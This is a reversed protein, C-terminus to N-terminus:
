LLPGSNHALFPTKFANIYILAKLSQTLLGRTLLPLPRPPQRDAQFYFLEAGIEQIMLAELTARVTPSRVGACKLAPLQRLM